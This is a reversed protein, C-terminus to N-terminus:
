KQVINEISPRGKCIKGNHAGDQKQSQKKSGNEESMYNSTNRVSSYNSHTASCNVYKSKQTLSKDKQSQQRKLKKKLENVMETCSIVKEKFHSLAVIAAEIKGNFQDLAVNREEIRNQMGLKEMNLLEYNILSLGEGLDELSKLAAEKESLADRVRIYKLVAVTLETIVEKHRNVLFSIDKEQLIKGSSCKIHGNGYMEEAKLLSDVEEAANNQSENWIQFLEASKLDMKAKENTSKDLIDEFASLNKRYLLEAQSDELGGLVSKGEVYM